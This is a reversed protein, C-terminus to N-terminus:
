EPTTSHGDHDAAPQIINGHSDMVGIGTGAALRAAERVAEKNTVAVYRVGKIQSLRAIGDMGTASTEVDIRMDGAVIDIGAEPDTVGGYRKLIRHVTATHAKNAM